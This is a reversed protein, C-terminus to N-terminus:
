KIILKNRGNDKAEYLAEDATKIMDNITDQKTTTLGISITFSFHLRNDTIVNTYIFERITELNSIIEDKTKDKILICFEEGGMRSVLSNELVKSQLINTLEKIAVDGIDHGYTDNINKFKDIDIIAVGFTEKKKKAINFMETGEEFLYRRNYAGTMYDKNAQDNTKSFLEINDLQSGMRAVFEEESFDKSIFDNAGYKLFTPIVEKDAAGSIAIISIQDQRYKKRIETTFELGNMGPMMYDVFIIDIENDNAVKELGEEGSIATATKLNYRECISQMKFNFTKSDDIVLAKHESNNLYRYAMNSAQEIAFSRDKVVYDIVGKKQLIKKDLSNENGTLIIVPINYKMVLDVVEGNPADPLNLDLLALDFTKFKNLREFCLQRSNAQIIECRLKSHLAKSLRAEITRSDDVILVRKM